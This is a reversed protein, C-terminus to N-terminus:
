KYVSGDQLALSFQTLALSFQTLALSFQTLALSFQTLPLSFQLSRPEILDLSPKRLAGRVAVNHKMDSWPAYSRHFPWNPTLRLGGQWCERHSSVRTGPSFGGKSLEGKPELQTQYVWVSLERRVHSQPSIIILNDSLCINGVKAWTVTVRGRWSWLIPLYM